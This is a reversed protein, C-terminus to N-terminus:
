PTKSPDAANLNTLEVRTTKGAEITIPFDWKLRSDGAGADLDLTSVWYSGAPLRPLSARGELDTDVKAALYKTQAQMPAQQRVRRKFSNQAEAWKRAPNIGDMELEMGAVTEPHGQIFKKLATMYEQYQKEYRAPNETKDADRYKPKPIGNTVGGSNSRQYALLFEPVHLIDDATLLKDLGPMTLDLVDHTKLWERLEPSLKLGAIFKERDPAGNSEAIEHKIDEYSKTLVYFTFDRVPEPKAATPSVYAAFELTGTGASSQARTIGAALTFVVISGLALDRLIRMSNIRAADVGTAALSKQFFNTDAM